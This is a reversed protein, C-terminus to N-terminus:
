TLRFILIPLGDALKMVDAQVETPGKAFLAGLAEPTPEVGRVIAQVTIGEKLRIHGYVYPAISEFRPHCAPAINHTAFLLQGKGSLKTWSVDFSGCHECCETPPFTYKDCKNCKQAKMVGQGLERYYHEVPSVVTQESREPIM